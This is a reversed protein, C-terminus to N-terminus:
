EGGNQKEVVRCCYTITTVIFENRTMGLMKACRKAEEFLEENARVGVVKNFPKKVISKNKM